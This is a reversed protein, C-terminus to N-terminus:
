LAWITYNFSFYIASSSIHNRKEEGWFSFFLLIFKGCIHGMAITKTPSFVEGGGRWLLPALGWYKLIAEM